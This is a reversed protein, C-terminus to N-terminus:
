TISIDPFTSCYQYIVTKDISYENLWNLYHSTYFRYAEDGWDFSDDPSPAYPKNNSDNKQPFGAAINSGNSDNGSDVDAKCVKIKDKQEKKAM